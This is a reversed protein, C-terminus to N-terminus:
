SDDAHLWAIAQEVNDFLRASFGRNLLVTEIFQTAQFVAPNLEVWAIRYPGNFGLDALLKANEFGDLTSQPVTTNDIGLVKYCDHELCEDRMASFVRVAFALDKEGNSTVQVHHGEFSVRLENSVLLGQRSRVGPGVHM